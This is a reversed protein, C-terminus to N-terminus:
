LAVGRTEKSLQNEIADLVEDKYKNLWDLNTDITALAIKGPTNLSDPNNVILTQMKTKQEAKTLYNAIGTVVNRVANLAVYAKEIRDFNEVLFDLAVDVGEPNTYVASFVSAADQPRIVDESLSQELF